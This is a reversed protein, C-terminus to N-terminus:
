EPRLAAQGDINWGGLPVSRLVDSREVNRDMTEYKFTDVCVRAAYRIILKKPDWFRYCQKSKYM